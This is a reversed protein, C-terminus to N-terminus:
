LTLYQALTSRAKTPSRSCAFHSTTTYKTANSNPMTFLGLWDNVLLVENVSVGPSWVGIRTFRHGRNYRLLSSSELLSKITCRGLSCEPCRQMKSPKRRRVVSRDSTFMLMSTETLMRSFGASLVTTYTLIRSKTPRAPVCVYVTKAGVLM